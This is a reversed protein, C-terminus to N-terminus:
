FVETDIKGSTRKLYYYRNKIMLPCRGPLFESVQVWNPGVLKVANLLIENEEQSFRGITQRKKKALISFRKQIFDISVPFKLLRSIRKQIKKWDRCYHIAVRELLNDQTAGWAEFSAELSTSEQQFNVNKGESSAFELPKNHSFSPHLNRTTVSDSIPQQFLKKLPLSLIQSESLNRHDKKISSLNITFNVFSEFFNNYDFETM